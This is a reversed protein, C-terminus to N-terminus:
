GCAELSLKNYRVIDTLGFGREGGGLVVDGWKLVRPKEIKLLGSKLKM